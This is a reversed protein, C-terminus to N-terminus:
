MHVYLQTKILCGCFDLDIFLTTTNNYFELHMDIYNHVYSAVYDVINKIVLNIFFQM